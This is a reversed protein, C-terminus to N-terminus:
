IKVSLSFSVPLTKYFSVAHFKLNLFLIWYKTHTKTKAIAREANEHQEKSEHDKILTKQM